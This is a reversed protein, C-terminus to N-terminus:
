TNPPAQGRGVGLVLCGVGTGPAMGHSRFWDIAESLAQDIPTQPMGLERVAKSGDFFMKKRAMRVGEVPIRPPQHSVHNSWWQSVHAAALAVELPIQRRPSPLGTLAGLLDFIERLTMNRQGLIYREGIRGREAALLHGEAV